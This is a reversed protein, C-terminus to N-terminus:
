EMNKQQKRKSVLDKQAQNLAADIKAQMELM